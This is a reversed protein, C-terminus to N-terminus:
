DESRSCEIRLHRPDREIGSIVIRCAEPAIHDRRQIRELGTEGGIGQRRELERWRGRDIRQQRPHEVGQGRQRRIGDQHQIIVMGDVARRDVLREGEDEIVQRRAQVQHDGGAGIRRQWERAQAGRPYRVSSRAASKRKVGSSTAM